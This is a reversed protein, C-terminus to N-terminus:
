LFQPHLSTHLVPLSSACLDIKCKTIDTRYGRLLSLLRREGRGPQPCLDNTFLAQFKDFTNKSAKKLVAPPTALLARRPPPLPPHYQHQHYSHHHFICAALSDAICSYVWKQVEKRSLPHPLCGRMFCALLCPHVHLEGIVDPLSEGVGALAPCPLARCTRLALKIAKAPKM